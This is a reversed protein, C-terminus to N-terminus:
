AEYFKKIVEFIYNMEEKGYRQDCPITLCCNSLYESDPYLKTSENTRWHINCYVGNSILHHILKDREDCLIFLGLPTMEGKRDVIIKVQPITHILSCLFDYNAIRKSRIENFDLSKLIDISIKSIDRITYDEFLTRMADENYSLFYRKQEQNRDKNHLYEKKLIQALFYYFTYENVSSARKYEELHRSLVIGGDPIPFWKRLSGIIYDGFGVYEGDSSLLSLSIDEVIIVENAKAQFILSLMEKELRKGFYQLVYFISRKEIHVSSVDISLDKKIEYYSIQMGARITADRVSDCLFSPLLVTEYGKEKLQLFVSEIAARGTNFFYPYYGNQVPLQPIELGTNRYLDKIDIEFISGIEM